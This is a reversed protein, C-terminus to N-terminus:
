GDAIRSEYLQRAIHYHRCMARYSEFQNGLHDCCTIGRYVPKSLADEVSWHLINVRQLYIKDPVNYFRCMEAVSNFVNGLHDRCEVNAM